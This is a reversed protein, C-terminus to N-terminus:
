LKTLAIWFYTYPAMCPCFFVKGWATLFPKKLSSISRLCVRPLSTFYSSHTAWLVFAAPVHISRVSCRLSLCSWSPDPLSESPSPLPQFRSLLFALCGHPSGSFRGLLHRSASHPGQCPVAPTVITWLETITKRWDFVINKRWYFTRLAIFWLNTKKKKHSM